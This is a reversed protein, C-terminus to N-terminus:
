KRRMGAVQVASLVGIKGYDDVVLRHEYFVKRVDSFFSDMDMSQNKRCQYRGWMLNHLNLVQISSYWRKIRHGAVQFLPKPFLGRKEWEMITERQRDIAEALIQLTFLEITADDVQFEHGKRFVTRIPCKELPVRNSYKPHYDPHDRDKIRLVIV